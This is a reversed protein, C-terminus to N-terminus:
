IMSYGDYFMLFVIHAISWNENEILIEYNKKKMEENASAGNLNFLTLFQNLQRKDSAAVHALLEM